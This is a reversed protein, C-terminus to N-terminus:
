ILLFWYLLFSISFILTFNSIAVAMVIISATPGVGVTFAQVTVNYNTSPMLGGIEQSLMKVLNFRTRNGTGDSLMYEVIYYKIVGNPIEPESWM